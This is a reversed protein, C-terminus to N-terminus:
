RCHEAIQENLHRVRAHLRNAQAAGHSKRLQQWARDRQAELHACDPASASTVPTQLSIALTLFLSRALSTM